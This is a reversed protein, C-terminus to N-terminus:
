RTEPNITNLFTAADKNAYIEATGDHEYKVGGTGHARQDGGDFTKPQTGINKVAVTVLCYQGQATKSLFEDGVKAIGCAVKQVVFEFKGDRVPQGVKAGAPKAAETRAAETKAAEGAGTTAAAAPAPAADTSSHTATKKPSVAVVVIGGVCCLGVLSAGIILLLKGTGM